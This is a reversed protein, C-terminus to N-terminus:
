RKRERPAPAFWITNSATDIRDVIVSGCIKGEAHESFDSSEHGPQFFAELPGEVTYADFDSPIMGTDGGHPNGM